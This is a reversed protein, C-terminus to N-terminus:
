CKSNNNFKFYIYFCETEFCKLFIYAKTKGKRLSFTHITDSKGMETTAIKLKDRLVNDYIAIRDGIKVKANSRSNFDIRLESFITLCSITFQCFSDNFNTLATCTIPNFNYNYQM